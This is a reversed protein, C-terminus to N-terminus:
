KGRSDPKPMGWQITKYKFDDAVVVKESMEQIADEFKDLKGQFEQIGENPTPLAKVRSGCSDM